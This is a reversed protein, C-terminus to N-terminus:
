VQARDTCDLRSDVLNEHNGDFVVGSVLHSEPRKVQLLLGSLPLPTAIALHARVNCAEKSIPPAPSLMGHVQGVIAAVSPYDFALTVPLQLDFAASLTTALDVASLSDVTGAAFGGSGAM